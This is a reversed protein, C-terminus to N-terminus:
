RQKPGCGCEPVPYIVFLCNRSSRMLQHFCIRLLPVFIEAWCFRGPLLKGNVSCLRAAAREPRSKCGTVLLPLKGLTKPPAM